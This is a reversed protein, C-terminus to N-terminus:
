IAKAMFTVEFPLHPFHGTGTVAFGSRQYWERLPLDDSIIGIELRSAGLDKAEGTARSLLGRGIGRRRFAPLVTLREIYCVNGGAEELGVCGVSVGDQEAIFYRVGREFDLQIWALTCNSPHKPCNDGDLDFREAVDRFGRRILDVLIRADNPAAPRIMSPLPNGLM